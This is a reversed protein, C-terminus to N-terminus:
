VYLKVFTIEVRYNDSAEWDLTDRQVLRTGGGGKAYLLRADIGNLLLYKAVSDAQQQSLAIDAQKSGTNTTYAVVKILTKTYQNIYQTVLDLTSYAQSKLDATMAHFLRASPLIILMQDGLVVVTAGRNKLKDELTTTSDIYSGYSAGLIAGTATGPIFGIGSSLAGTVAGATGGLLAGKTAQSTNQYADAFSGNTTGAVMNRSNEVGMDIGSAVDRSVESSACGTLLFCIILLTCFSVQVQKPLDLM